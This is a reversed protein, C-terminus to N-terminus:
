NKYLPKLLKNPRNGTEENSFLDHITGGGTVTEENSGADNEADNNCRYMTLNSVILALSLFRLM